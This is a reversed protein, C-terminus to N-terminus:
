KNLQYKALLEDVLAPVGVTAPEAIVRTFSEDGSPKPNVEIVEATEHFDGWRCARAFLSAPMVTGSTGVSIFIEARDLLPEIMDLHYPMEGFWVVDPRMPCLCRPCLTDPSTEGVIKEEHSCSVCRITQLDGHIKALKKSGAREHLDDVNQTVLLFGGDTWGEELRALAYHADNPVVSKLSARRDNYFRHILAPDRRYGDPTAVDRVDHQEWLGNADRFTQIGSEASIGAGTLIVLNPM